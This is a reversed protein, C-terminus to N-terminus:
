HHRRRKQNASVAPRDERVQGFALEIQALRLSTENRPLQRLAARRQIKEHDAHLVRGVRQSFIRPQGALGHHGRFPREAIKLRMARQGPRLLRQLDRARKAFLM